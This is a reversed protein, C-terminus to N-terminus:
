EVLWERKIIPQGKEDLPPTVTLIVPQSQLRKGTGRIWWETTIMFIGIRLTTFEFELGKERPTTTNFEWGHFAIVDQPLGKDFIRTTDRAHYDSPRRNILRGTAIEYDAIPRIIHSVTQVTLDAVRTMETLRVKDGRQVRAKDLSAVIEVTPPPPQGDEKDGGGRKPLEPMPRAGTFAGSCLLASASLCLMLM